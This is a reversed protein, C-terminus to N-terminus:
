IKNKIKYVVKGYELYKYLNNLQDIKIYYKNNKLIYNSKNLYINDDIELYFDVNKYIIIKLDILDKNYESSYINEIELISGYEKNYYINVKFFGFINIHYKKIIKVIIEKIQTNLNDINDIFLDIAYLYIIIKDNVCEIKM